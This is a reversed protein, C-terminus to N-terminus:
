HGHTGLLNQGINHTIETATAVFCQMFLVIHYLKDLIQVDIWSIHANM